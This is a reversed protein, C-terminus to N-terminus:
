GRPKTDENSGEPRSLLLRLARDGRDERVWKEGCTPDVYGGAERRVDGRRKPERRASCVPRGTALLVDRGAESTGFWGLGDVVVEGEGGAGVGRTPEQGEAGDGCLRWSGGGGGPQGVAAPGGAHAVLEDLQVRGAAAEVVLMGDVAAHAVSPGAVAHLLADDIDSVGAADVRDLAHLLCAPVVVGVRAIAAVCRAVAGLSSHQRGHRAPLRPPDAPEKAEVEAAPVGEDAGGGGRPAREPEGTM